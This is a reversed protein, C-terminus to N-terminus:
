RCALSLDDRAHVKDTFAQIYGMVLEEWEARPLSITAKRRITHAV